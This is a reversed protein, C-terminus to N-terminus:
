TVKPIKYQPLAIHVQLWSNIHRRLSEVISRHRVNM